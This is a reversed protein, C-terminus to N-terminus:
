YKFDGESIVTTTIEVIHGTQGNVLNPILMTFDVLRM